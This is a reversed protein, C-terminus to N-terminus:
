AGGGSPTKARSPRVYARSYARHCARCSRWGRRDVRTNAADYEHGAPCHTKARQRKAEVEGATGRRTNEAGPVQELHDPNVCARTRCLHDVTLDPDLAQGGIHLLAWRHANWTRGDHGYFKGYGNTSIAGIWLWCGGSADKNVKALFRTMADNM